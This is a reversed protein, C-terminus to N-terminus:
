GERQEAVPRHVLVEDEEPFVLVVRGGREQQEAQSVLFYGAARAAVLDLQIMMEDAFTMLIATGPPRESDRPVFRVGHERLCTRLQALGRSLRSGATSYPIELAEAIENLTQGQLNLLVVARVGEPLQELCVGVVGELRPAQQILDDEPPAWPQLPAPADALAEVEVEMSRQESRLHDHLRSRAIRFLWPRFQGRSRDFRGGRAKTQMVYVLASEAVDEAAEAGVFRRLFGVLRRFYRNYLETFAEESGTYYDEILDEEM